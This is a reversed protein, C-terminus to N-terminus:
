GGQMPVIIDIVDANKLQTADHQTRPVFQRNIAVAYSGDKYGNAALIQALTNTEMVQLERQNLVITIM